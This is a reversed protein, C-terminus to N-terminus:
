GCAFVRNLYYETLAPPYGILDVLRRYCETQDAGRQRWVPVRKILTEVCERPTIIWTDQSVEGFYFDVPCSRMAQPKMYLALTLVQRAGQEAIYRSLFQLTDGRDGLDDIVLVIEDQVPISVAHQVRPSDFREDPGKYLSVGVTGFTIEPTGQVRGKALHDYLLIGPLMGGMTAMLARTIAASSPSHTKQYDHVQQALEFVALAEVADPVLLFRLEDDPVSVGEPTRWFEIDIDRAPGHIQQQYSSM